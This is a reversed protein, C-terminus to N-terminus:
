AGAGRAPPHAAELMVRAVDEPSRLAGAADAADLADSMRAQAARDYREADPAHWRAYFEDADGEARERAAREAALAIRGADLGHAWGTVYLARARRCSWSTASARACTM